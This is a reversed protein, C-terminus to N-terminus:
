VRVLPLGVRFCTGSGPTSTVSMTGGHTTAIIFYSVSLGLGTGEGVKKTTYFPEFVRGIREAAIGPGNDEVEIIAHDKERFVRVAIRPHETRASGMAQAANRVLNLVVQEIETPACPVQPMHPQVEIALAIRKFDYKKKLDYDNEALAIAHRVVNGLDHEEINSDSSRSFDLMNRVISAARQGAERIGELYHLIKRRELLTHVADMDLGLAAAETRTAPLTPDLRRQIGLASQFIIGLPNNIEHAMGAALGGLSLMKETQVMAQQVLKTQTIDRIGNIFCPEGSIDIRRASNLAERMTGDKRRIRFEFDEVFGDQQLRHMFETRLTPDHWLNLDVSKRGIVEDRTYGTLRETAANTELIISDAIRVISISDPAMEFVKSFKERSLALELEAKKRDNIDEITGDLYLPNGAGDLSLSANLRAYFRSGDRRKFEVELRAEAPNRLLAERLQVKFTPDFYLDQGVDDVTAILQAPSDYGLMHALTSNAEIFKGEFSTRFIGIPTNEFIARFKSESAALNLEAQKRATMDVTMSLLCDEGGFVLPVTSYLMHRMSGDPLTMSLEQEHVGGQQQIALRLARTEAEDMPVLDTSTCSLAQEQTLGLAKLFAPNVDLYAGDSTRSIAISYPANAFITRFRKESEAIAQLNRRHETEDRFVMVAGTVNNGGLIPAATHTIYYEQGCPSILLTNGGSHVTRRHDLAAFVPNPAPTRTTADVITFLDDLPKGLAEPLNCGMLHQAVPNILTIHGRQDTAVVADGISDLTIRLREESRHLANASAALEHNQAALTSTAAVIRRRLQLNWAVTLMVVITAGALVFVIMRWPIVASVSRGSWDEVIADLETRSIENLGLQVWHLAVANGKRVATYQSNVFQAEPSQRFADGGFTKNLYYLAVPTDAVFVKIEGTVAARVLADVSAFPVIDISLGTAALLEEASDDKVVGVRFGELDKFDKIGSIQNHFFISTPIKLIATSFDYIAEREPTRFLSGVADARGDRVARLAEEWDMLQYEVPIGTKKSWLKWIDVTIGAPNGQADLFSFPPYAKDDAVIIREPAAMAAQAFLCTALIGALISPVIASLAFRLSLVKNM